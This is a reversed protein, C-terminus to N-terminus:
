SPDDKVDAVTAAENAAEHEESQGHVATLATPESRTNVLSEGMGFRGARSALSAKRILDIDVHISLADFRWPV